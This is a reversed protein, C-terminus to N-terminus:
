AWKSAHCSSVSPNECWTSFYFCYSLSYQEYYAFKPREPDNKSNVDDNWGGSLRLPKVVFNEGVPSLLMKSIRNNVTQSASQLEVWSPFCKAPFPSFSLLRLILVSSSVAVYDFYGEGNKIPFISIPVPSLSYLSVNRRTSITSCSVKPPEHVQPEQSEMIKRGKHTTPKCKQIDPYVQNNKLELASREGNKGKKGGKRRTQLAKRKM